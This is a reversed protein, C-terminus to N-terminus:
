SKRGYKMRVLDVAYVGIILIFSLGSIFLGVNLMKQPEYYITLKQGFTTNAMYWGNGFGNIMFHPPNSVSSNSKVKWGTSYNELFSLIYPSSINKVTVAYEVPSIKTFEIEPQTKSFTAADKIVYLKNKYIKRINLNKFLSKSETHKNDTALRIQLELQSDPIIVPEVISGHKIWEPTSYSQVPFIRLPVSNRFQLLRLEPEVGYSYLYEFEFVYNFTSDFNEVPIVLTQAKEATKAEIIGQQNVFEDALFQNQTDPFDVNIIHTGAQLEQEWMIFGNEIKFNDLPNNDLFVKIEQDELGFSELAIKYTSKKAVDFSFTKSNNSTLNNEIEEPVIIKGLLGDSSFKEVESDEDSVITADKPLINAAAQWDSKHQNDIYVYNSIFIKKNLEAKPLEFFSWEGIKKEVAGLDVMKNYDLNPSISNADSKVFITDVGLFKLVSFAEKYNGRKAFIYFENIIKEIGKSPFNFTPTIFEQESFLGLISDTGKYGWKFSELQDDPYAIVRNVDKNNKLWKQTEFVYNPFSTFFSDDRDPRYIKGNILPYSYVLHGVLFIILFVNILRLIKKNVFTLYINEIFLAVLASFSLTILPTFIYWPSRFFSFFPVFKMLNTFLIGTPKHTGASLFIGITSLAAFIFYYTSKEKKKFILALLVLVPVVFSFLIFIPNYFYNLAYPIYLPIKNSLAYWDWAGQLRIVNLISTNASLSDVWNTFGLDELVGPKKLLFLFNFLPLIWFLNVLFLILVSLGVGKILRTKEEKQKISIVLCFCFFLFGFLITIFYSPNIGSGSSALSFLAIYLSLKKYNIKKDKFRVIAGIFLPLGIYLSLNSVKINEWTNFLYINFTYLAVFLVQAISNNKVISKIFFYGSFVISSFWFVLNLIQVTRLDIGLVFPLTQLFHFFLGSVSSNFDNGGNSVDYWAFFRRHLWVLPNLPFNTDLGNILINGRGIYWIIPTLSFVVFLLIKWYKFQSIKKM